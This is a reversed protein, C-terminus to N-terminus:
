HMGEVTVVTMKKIYEFIINSITPLLGVTALLVLLGGLVKLQLGIAFMNMQPAVKSLVGLVTNVLLIVTFVPLAIRFGIIFYSSVFDILSNLLGSRIVLEGVPIIKYTDVIAKILYQHMDTVVFMVMVLYYYLNGTISVNVGTSPDFLTAMAFGMDMDMFNGAFYISQVCINTVLGLLIGVVSEKIVVIAYELVGDYAVTTDKCTQFVLFSIVVSILIKVKSPITKAGFFPATSIFSLIRVLLLLFYQLDYLTFSYEM